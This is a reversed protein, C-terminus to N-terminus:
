LDANRLGREAQGARRRNANRRVAAILRHTLDEVVDRDVVHGSTGALVYSVGGYLRPISEVLELLEVEAPTYGERSDVPRTQNIIALHEVVHALLEGPVSNPRECTVLEAPGNLGRLNDGRPGTARIYRNGDADVYGGDRGLRHAPGRKSLVYTAYDEIPGVYVYIM